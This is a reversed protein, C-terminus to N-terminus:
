KTGVTCTGSRIQILNKRVLRPGPGSDVDGQKQSAANTGFAKNYNEQEVPSCRHSRYLLDTPRIHQGPFGLASIFLGVM